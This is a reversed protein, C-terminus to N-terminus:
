RKQNRLIANIDTRGLRSATKGIWVSVESPSADPIKELAKQDLHRTIRYIAEARQLPLAMVHPNAATGRTAPNIPIGGLDSKERSNIGPTM